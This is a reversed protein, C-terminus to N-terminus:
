RTSNRRSGAFLREKIFRGMNGGYSGLLFDEYRLIRVALMLSATICLLEILITVGIWAWQFTGAIAERFVLAVNVIPILALGPTLNLGPVQLFMVPLFIAIYFPSVLSQGEKFSRAFSALIMMGAAVFLALLITVLLILPIATLPIRFTFEETRDELIPALIASMSSVMATLNLIGALSAMTAVYLYKAIVINVRPTAITMLTEWTSKEREGATSDIAPYMCGVALMIILFLPLMLGLLFQGMQRSSAVNQTDIWFQQLESRSLGLRESEVELFRDRYRSILDSVRTRAMRSRDKSGDFTIRASFNGELRSGARSPPSFEVIADLTGARVESDPNVSSRLQVRDAEKLLKELDRHETPLNLLVVRSTLGETQGGVFTIGTYALWLILPYLFIPLLISNVLINRERLASRIERLYLLRIDHIRIRGERDNGSSQKPQM